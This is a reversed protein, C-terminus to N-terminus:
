LLESAVGTYTITNDAEDHASRRRVRDRARKWGKEWKGLAEEKEKESMGDTNPKDPCGRKPKRGAGAGRVSPVRYKADDISDDDNDDFLSSKYFNDDDDENDYIDETAVYDEDKDVDSGENGGIANNRDDERDKDKDGENGTDDYKGEGNDSCIIEKITPDVTFASDLAAVRAARAEICSSQAASRTTASSSERSPPERSAPTSPPTPVDAKNRVGQKTHVMM